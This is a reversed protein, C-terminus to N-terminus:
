RVWRLGVKRSKAGVCRQGALREDLVRVMWSAPHLDCAPVLIGANRQRRTEVDARLRELCVELSVGLCTLDGGDVEELCDVVVRELHESREEAHSTSRAVHDMVTNSSDDGVLGSQHSIDRSKLAVAVNAVLEDLTSAANGFREEVAV